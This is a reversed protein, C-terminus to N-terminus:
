VKLMQLHLRISPFFFLVLGVSLFLLIAAPYWILAFALGVGGAIRTARRPPMFRFLVLQLLRGGDLPQVPLMNFIGLFLNITATWFLVWGLLGTGAWQGILSAIAWLAFNVIPGMAIILEDARPTGTRAHECFGGGGHLMIRKVAVGQVLCGWAHGLEHLFISGILLGVFILSFALGNSGALVLFLLPLLLISGGIQVPIGWPGTFTFIPKEAGMLPKM